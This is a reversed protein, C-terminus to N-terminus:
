PTGGPMHPKTELEEGCRECVRRDPVSYDGRRWYGRGHGERRCRAAQTQEYYERALRDRVTSM